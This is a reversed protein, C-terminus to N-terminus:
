ARPLLVTFTSGVGVESHVAITGGANEITRKILYLGVGSGEVHTHLRRFLTFLRRLQQENLGLGNDQVELQFQTATCRTRVQVVPARDPARYKLANSLLNFLVSRLSKTSFHLHPCEEVDAVLEARTSELLPRLDLRVAGLVVAVDITETPQTLENQLRSVDTLHGVTEQFRTIAGEMMSVLRPVMPEQEDTPLYDRLAGLLGEINAIPAKLDHSAAYVFSDLDVNTRTLQTNTAYLTQNTAMLNENAAALEQNLDLVQQRAVVQETVDQLFLAVGAIHERERYAQYTFTVYRPAADPTAGPLLTAESQYTEGSQYLGDLQALVAATALAPLAQALPVGAQAGPFFQDFLANRYDLQHDPERLLAVALPAHAFLRLIDQREEARRQAAALLDAQLDEARQRAQVRPTVDLIFALIGQVRRQADLLPQYVFDVYRPENRGTQADYLQAPMDTGVFPEGTAYVQDLLGVFGQAVVEPFVEAVTHGLRARGAALAQYPENFFTYRHEPGSLTAIFAPVQKLVQGLLEQQAALERTRQQVRTELEQNLQRLQVQAERLATNAHLHEANAARLEENIAALEENLHQVQQRALVQETVETSVNIVGLLEQQADYLPQCSFTYYRRVMKGGQLIDAPAETGIYPVHTAQVALIMEDFGQGALEPLAELLPRGVVQPPTRGWLAAMQENASAIRVDPGQFLAIAVPAQTFLAQLM